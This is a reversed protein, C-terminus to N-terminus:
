IMNEYDTKKDQLVVYADLLAMFGDIRRTPRSTKCPRINANKDEEYAVNSFNWKDLPNDNYVILKAALDAGLSKMPASLTKYGQIVPVMSEAGFHGRMEEVFYTASWSDYGIWPIYIDDQEQQEVFWNVVDHAYVKNGACTRMLGREIWVDYPIKDERVRKEILDEPLWYMSKVYIHPDGRVQFIVKAATLDTTSSLDVGGIGYRPKLQAM